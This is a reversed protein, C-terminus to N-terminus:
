RSQTTTSRTSTAKKLMALQPLIKEIEEIDHLGYYPRDNIVLAPLNDQVNNIDIMTRLASLGLNYDFSYIRLQPYKESLGTLVYGQEECDECDGKNSYFYLIFVPKLKCKAAVHQMLLLDKIQLLSYYRKLQSLEDQNVNSQTELYSLRQALPQIETSLVSNESIDRCSHQALLEFQTELSLIDISIKDQTSQIDAIRRNNFYNSVYLATAFILATIAFAMLYSSWRASRTNVVPDQPM